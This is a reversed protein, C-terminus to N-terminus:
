PVRSGAGLVATVSLLLARPLLTRSRSRGSADTTLIVDHKKGLHPNVMGASEEGVIFRLKFGLVIGSGALPGLPRTSEVGSEGELEGIGPVGSSNGWLKAVSYASGTGIGRIVV